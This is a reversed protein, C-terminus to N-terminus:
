EKARHQASLQRLAALAEAARAAPVFIHDHHYAAVVNASIERDALARSVAATLGVAELSSHVRLTICRFPAGPNLGARIAADVPLILSLGETEHFSGLVDAENLGAPVEARNIAGEPVEAVSCFCYEGAALEPEMHALLLGLKTEGSM